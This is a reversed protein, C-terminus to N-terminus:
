YLLTTEDVVGEWTEYSTHRLDTRRFLDRRRVLHDAAIEANTRTGNLSDGCYGTMFTGGYASGFGALARLASPEARKLSLYLERSIARPPDWGAAVAQYLLVVDEMADGAHLSTFQNSADAAELVWAGGVFPEVWRTADPAGKVMEAVIRRAIRAKEGQYKM